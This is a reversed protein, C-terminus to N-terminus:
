LAHGCARVVRFWIKKAFVFDAEVFDPAVDVRSKRLYLVQDIVSIKQCLINLM